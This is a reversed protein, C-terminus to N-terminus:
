NIEEIVISALDSVICSVLRDYGALSFFYKFESSKKGYALHYRLRTENMFKGFDNPPIYINNKLSIVNVLEKFEIRCTRYLSEKKELYYNNLSLSDTRIKLKVKKELETLVLDITLVGDLYSYKELISDGSNYIVKDLTTM